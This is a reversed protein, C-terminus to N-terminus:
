NEENFTVSCAENGYLVGDLILLIYQAWVFWLPMHPTSKYIWENKVSACCRTLKM